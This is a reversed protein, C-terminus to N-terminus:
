GRVREIEHIAGGYRFAFAADPTTPTATDFSTGFDARSQAVLQAALATLVPEELGQAEARELADNIARGVPKPEPDSERWCWGAFATQWLAVAAPSRDDRVYGRAVPAVSFLRERLPTVHTDRDQFLADARTVREHDFGVGRLSSLVHWGDTRMGGYSTPVLSSVALAIALAGGITLLM